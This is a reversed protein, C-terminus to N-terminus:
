ISGRWRGTLAADICDELSGFWCEVNMIAPLYHAQKASDTAAVKTGKPLVRGIAPCTDSLVHGGAREIIETYGSLDSTDKL